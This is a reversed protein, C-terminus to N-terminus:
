REPATAMIDWTRTLSTATIAACYFNVNLNSPSAVHAARTLSFLHDPPDYRGDDSEKNIPFEECCDSCTLTTASSFLWGFRPARAVLEDGLDGAELLGVFAEFVRM